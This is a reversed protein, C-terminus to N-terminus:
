ENDDFMEKRLKEKEDEQIGHTKMIIDFEDNLKLSRFIDIIDLCERKSVKYVISLFNLLEKKNEFTNPKKIYKIYTYKKPLSYLLMNYYDKSTMSSNNVIQLENLFDLYEINMSLWRTIMYDDWSKKDGDSLSNWPTKDKTIGKLHDFIHKAM